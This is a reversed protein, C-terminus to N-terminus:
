PSAQSMCSWLICRIEFIKGNWLRVIGNNTPTQCGSSVLFDILHVGDLKKIASRLASTVSLCSEHRCTQDKARGNSLACNLSLRGLSASRSINPKETVHRQM